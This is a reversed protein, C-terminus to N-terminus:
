NVFELISADEGLEVYLSFVVINSDLVSILPLFCENDVFSEKFRHDHEEALGVEWCGELSEHIVKKSIEESFSPKDNTNSLGTRPSAFSQLQVPSLGFLVLVSFSQKNTKQLRSRPRKMKFFDFLSFFVPKFWHKKPGIIYMNVVMNPSNKTIKDYKKQFKNM